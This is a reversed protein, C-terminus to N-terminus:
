RNTSKVYVRFETNNRTIRYGGGLKNVMYYYYAWDNFRTQMIATELDLKLESVKENEVVYDPNSVYDQIIDPLIGMLKYIYSKNPAKFENSIFVLYGISWFEYTGIKKMSNSLYISYIVKDVDTKNAVFTLDNPNFHDVSHGHRMYDENLIDYFKM